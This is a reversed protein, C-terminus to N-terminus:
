LTGAYAHGEEAEEVRREVDVRVVAIVARNVQHPGVLLALCDANPASM